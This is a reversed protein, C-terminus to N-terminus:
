SAAYRMWNQIGYIRSLACGCLDIVPIGQEDMLAQALAKYRVVDADRRFPPGAGQARAKAYAERM